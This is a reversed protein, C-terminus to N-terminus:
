WDAIYAIRVQINTFLHTPWLDLLFKAELKFPVSIAKVSNFDPVM